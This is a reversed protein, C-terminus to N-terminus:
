SVSTAGNFADAFAGSIGSSFSSPQSGQTWMDCSFIQMVGIPFESVESDFQHSSFYDNLYIGKDWIVSWSKTSRSFM